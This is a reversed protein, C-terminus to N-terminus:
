ALSVDPFAEPCDESVVLVRRSVVGGDVAGEIETV